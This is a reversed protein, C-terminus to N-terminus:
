RTATTASSPARSSGTAASSSAHLRRQVHRDPDLLPDCAEGPDLIGDGCEPHVCPNADLVDQMAHHHLVEHGRPVMSRAMGEVSCDISRDLCDILGDLDDLNGPPTLAACIPELGAFGLGPALAPFTRRTSRSHLGAPHRHGEQDRGGRDERLATDCRTRRRPRRVASRALRGPARVASPLRPERGHVGAARGAEDEVYRAGQKEIATQCALLATATTAPRRAPRAVAPVCGQPPLLAPYGNSPAGRIRAAGPPRGDGRDPLLARPRSLARHGRADVHRYRATASPSTSASGSAAPSARRRQRPRCGSLRRRDPALAGGRLPDRAGAHPQVDREREPPLRATAGGTEQAVQCALLRDVCTQLAPQKTKVFTAAAKAIATQCSLLATSTSRRSRSRSSRAASAISSSRRASSRRRSSTSAPWTSRAPRSTSRSARRLSAPTPPIPARELAWRVVSARSRRSASCSSTSGSARRFSINGGQDITGIYLAQGGSAATPIRAPRRSGNEAPGSQTNFLIAGPQAPLVPNGFEDEPARADIAIRGAAFDISVGLRIENHLCVNGNSCISPQTIQQAVTLATLSTIRLEHFTGPPLDPAPSLALAHPPAALVALGMCLRAILSTGATLTRM